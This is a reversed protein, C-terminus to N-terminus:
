NPVWITGRSTRIPILRGESRAVSAADLLRPQTGVVCCAVQPEVVLPSTAVITRGFSSPPSGYRAPVFVASGWGAAGSPYPNANEIAQRDERLVAVGDDADLGADLSSPAPSPRPEDDVARPAEAEAAAPEEGEVRVRLVGDVVRYSVGDIEPTPATLDLLRSLFGDSFGAQALEQVAQAGLQGALGRREVVRLVLSEPLDAMAVLDSAALPRAPASQPHFFMLVAGVVLSRWMSVGASLSGRVAPLTVASRSAETTEPM